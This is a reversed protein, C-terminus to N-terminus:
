AGLSIAVGGVSVSEGYRGIVGPLGQPAGSGGLGPWVGGAVAIALLLGLCAVTAGLRLALVRAWGNENRTQRNM